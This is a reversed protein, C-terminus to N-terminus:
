QMIKLLLDSSFKTFYIYVYLYVYRCVFMCKHESTNACVCVCVGGQIARCNRFLNLAVHIKLPCIEKWLCVFWFFFFGLVQQSLLPFAQM